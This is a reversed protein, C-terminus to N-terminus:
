VEPSSADTYPVLDSSSAAGIKTAGAARQWARRGRTGSSPHVCTGLSGPGLKKQLCCHPCHWNRSKPGRASHGESM